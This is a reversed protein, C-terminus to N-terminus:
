YPSPNVELDNKVVTVGDVDRLDDVIVRADFESRVTGQLTVADNEVGITVHELSPALGRDYEIQKQIAYALARDNSMNHQQDVRVVIRAPNPYPYTPTTDSYVRQVRTGTPTLAFQPLQGYHVWDVVTTDPQAPINSCGAVLLALPAIWILQITKKM